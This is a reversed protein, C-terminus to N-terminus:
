PQVTPKLALEVVVRRHDSAVSDLVQASRVALGRTWVFDIREAPDVAPSTPAANFDGAVFPDTFGAAQITNYIPSGPTSNFDGGLVAPVADSITTLADKLQREREEPELGLWTGYANLVHGAVQLRASVIATQELHSTLQQTDAQTIPFRSLLAVGSLEELAPGFVQRMRLRHALWLADDVGYSTIRGADVEQLMVIDAGSREITRAQQELSFQWDTNYGYHINYSGVRFPGPRAEQAALRPPHAFAATIAVLVAAAAWSVIRLKRSSARPESSRSGIAPILLFAVAFLFVYDGKSRLFPLTYAYTFALALVVHLLLFLL